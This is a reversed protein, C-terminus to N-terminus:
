GRRSPTGAAIGGRPAPCAGRAFGRCVVVSGVFMAAALGFVVADAQHAPVVGGLVPVVGLVITGVAHIGMPVLMWRSAERGEPLSSDRSNGLFIVGFARTISLASVAGVFALAAAVLGLTM